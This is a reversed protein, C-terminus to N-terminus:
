SSSTIKNIFSRAAQALEAESYYQGMHLNPHPNGLLMKSVRRGQRYCCLVPKGRSLAYAIEYGVGHSPTSVEAVLADCADIWDTDRQYVEAPSIRGEQQMVEPRALSATPVVHGEELLATVLAAYAAEDQRGGTISCAFYINM